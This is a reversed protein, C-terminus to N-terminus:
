VHAGSVGELQIFKVVNSLTKPGWNGGRYVPSISIILRMSNNHAILKFHESCYMTLM